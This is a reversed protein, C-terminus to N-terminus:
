SSVLLLAWLFFAPLNSKILILFTQEIFFRIFIIFLYTVSYSFINVLSMVFVSSTDLINLSTESSFTFIAFGILVYALSIFFFFHWQLHYVSAFLCLFLHEVDNVKLFHLNFSCYFIVVYSSFLSLYFTNCM